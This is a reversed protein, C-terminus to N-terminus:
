LTGGACWQVCSASSDQDTPGGVDVVHLDNGLGWSIHLRRGPACPVKALTLPEGDM